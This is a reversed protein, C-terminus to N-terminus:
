HRAATAARYTLNENRTSAIASRQFHSLPLYTAKAAAVKRLLDWAQNPSIRANVRYGLVSDGKTMRRLLYYFAWLALRPSQELWLANVFIAYTNACLQRSLFNADSSRESIDSHHYVFTQDSVSIRWGAKRLAKGWLYWLGGFSYSEDYRLGADFVARPYVSAGDAIAACEELNQPACGAGSRHLETPFSIRRSPDAPDIEGFAWIREPAEAIHERVKQLFDAPHTHDDDASLVHTGDCALSARNRNAYLGRRPGEVYRVGRAKVLSRNAKASDQDSDDSVVIEFPQLRQAQWSALCRQLSDPRNRTVLAVSIRIDELQQV